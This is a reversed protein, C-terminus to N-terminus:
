LGPSRLTARDLTQPESACSDMWRGRFATRARPFISGRGLTKQFHKDTCILLLYPHSRNLLSLGTQFLYKTGRPQSKGPHSYLLSLYLSSEVGTGRSGMLLVGAEKRPCLAGSCICPCILLCSAIGLRLAVALPPWPSGMPLHSMNLRDQGISATGYIGLVQAKGNRECVCEYVNM